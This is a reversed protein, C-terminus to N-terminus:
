AMWICGSEMADWCLVKGPFRKAVEKSLAKYEKVVEMGRIETIGLYSMGNNDMETILAEKQMKTMKIAREPTQSKRERESMCMIVCKNSLTLVKEKCELIYKIPQLECGM